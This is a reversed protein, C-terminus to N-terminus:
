WSPGLSEIEPAIQMGDSMYVGFLLGFVTMSLTDETSWLHTCDTMCDDRGNERIRM